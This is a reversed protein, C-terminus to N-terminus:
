DNKVGILTPNQKVRFKSMQVYEAYCNEDIYVKTLQNIKYRREEDSLTGDNNIAHINIILSNM